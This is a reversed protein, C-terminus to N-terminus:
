DRFGDIYQPSTLTVKAGVKKFATKTEANHPQKAIKECTMKALSELRASAENLFTTLSKPTSNGSWHARLVVAEYMALARLNRLEVVAGACAAILADDAPATDDADTTRAVIEPDPATDRGYFRIGKFVTADRMHAADAHDGRAVASFLAVQANAYDRRSKPFTRLELKRELGVAALAFEGRFVYIADLMDGLHRLLTMKTHARAADELTEIEFSKM